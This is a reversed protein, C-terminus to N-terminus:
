AQLQLGNQVTPWISLGATRILLILAGPPVLSGANAGTTLTTGALKNLNVLGYAKMAEADRWETMPKCPLLAQRKGISGHTM